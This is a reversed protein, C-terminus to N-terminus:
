ALLQSHMEMSLVVKPSQGGLGSNPKFVLDAFHIM